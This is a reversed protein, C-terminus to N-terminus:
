LNGLIANAASALQAAQAATLKKGTLAAVQNLFAHLINAATEADGAALAEQAAALKATLANAIGAPQLGMGNILAILADIASSPPMIEFPSLARNYIRVDDFSCGCNLDRFIREVDNTGVTFNFVETLNATVGDAATGAQVLADDFYLWANPGSRVGTVHHWNGDALPVNAGMPIYGRGGGDEMIELSVGTNSGRFDVFNGGSGFGGRTGVLEGFRAGPRKKVWFSITFDGTGFASVSPAMNVYGNLDHAAFDVAGTGVVGPIRVAGPGLIGDVAPGSGTDVAIGGSAEDFTWRHVPGSQAFVTSASLLCIGVCSAVKM